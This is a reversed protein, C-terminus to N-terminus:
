KKAAAKRTKSAAKKTKSSAKRPKRQGDDDIIIPGQATWAGNTPEDFPGRDLPPVRTKHGVLLNDSIQRGLYEHGNKRIWIFGAACDSVIDDETGDHKHKNRTLDLIGDDLGKVRSYWQQKCGAM